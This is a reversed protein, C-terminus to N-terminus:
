RTATSRSSPSLWWISSAGITRHPGTTRGNPYPLPCKTKRSKRLTHGSCTPCCSSRRSCDASNAPSSTSTADPLDEPLPLSQPNGPTLAKYLQNCYYDRLKWGKIEVDPEVQMLPAALTLRRELSEFEHARFRWHPSDAQPYSKGPVIPFAFPSDFSAVHEFARGFLHKALDIYHRRTM